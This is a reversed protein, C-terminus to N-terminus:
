PLDKASSRAWGRRTLTSSGPYQLALRALWDHQLGMDAEKKFLQYAETIEANEPIDTIDIVKLPLLSAKTESKTKLLSVIDEMAALEYPVSKRGGDKVYIPQISIDRMSLQIVRYTSDWGGTWLINVVTKSM